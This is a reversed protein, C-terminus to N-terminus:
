DEDKDDNSPEKKAVKKVGVAQDLDVHEIKFSNAKKSAILHIKDGKKWKKVKKRYSSAITYTEGNSLTIESGDEISIIELENTTEKAIPAKESAEKNAQLWSELATQEEPSLKDVGTAKKEEESMKEFFSPPPTDAATLGAFPTLFLAAMLFPKKM